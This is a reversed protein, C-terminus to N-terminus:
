STAVVRGRRDLQCRVVTRKVEHGGPLAYVARVEVPAVIRGNARARRGASVAEMSSVDYARATSAVAEKCAEVVRDSTAGAPALPADVSAVNQPTGRVWGYRKSYGWVDNGAGSTQAPAEANITAATRPPQARKNRMSTQRRQPAPQEPVVGPTATAPEQRAANVTIAAGAIGAVVLGFVLAPSAAHVPAAAILAATGISVFLCPKRM